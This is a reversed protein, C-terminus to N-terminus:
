PSATTSSWSRTSPRSRVAPRRCRSGWASSRCRDGVSGSVADTMAVAGGTFVQELLDKEAVSGVVEGIVVPPEASLVPMQSVGYTSMIEVVDRVTDSPHAHM